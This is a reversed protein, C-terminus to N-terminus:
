ANPVKALNRVVFALEVKGAKPVGSETWEWELLAVRVETSRASDLLPTDFATLAIRVAGQADVTGIGTNLVNIHSRGNVIAGTRDNFLTLWLASLSAAPIGNGALDQLTVGLTPTTGEAVEEKFTRRINNTTLM